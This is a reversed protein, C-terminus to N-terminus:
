NFTVMIEPLGKSALDALYDVGRQSIRFYLGSSGDEAPDDIRVTEYTNNNTIPMSPQEMNEELDQGVFQTTAGDSPSKTLRSHIEKLTKVL